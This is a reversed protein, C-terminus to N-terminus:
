DKRDIYGLMKSIKESAIKLDELIEEEHFEFQKMLTVTISAKIDGTRGFIPVGLARVGMEMEEDCVAYRLKKVNKLDNIIDETNMLTKNTFKEIEQEKLIEEIEEDNLFAIIAKGSASCHAPMYSGLKVYFKMRDSNNVMDVCISRHHELVSLFFLRKHKTSLEDLIPRSINVIDMENLIKSSLSLIKVGIKYKKSFNDQVILENEMLAKLLRHTTSLPLDLNISIEKVGLGAKYESLLELIDTIRDVIKM